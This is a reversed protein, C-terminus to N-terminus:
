RLGLTALGRVNNGIVLKGGGIQWYGTKSSVPHWEIPSSYLSADTGGIYLESNKKALKMGFTATKIAGQAKATNIFPSQHINSISQYALGMIGDAAEGALSATLNTVPSFYQNTAKIGAM